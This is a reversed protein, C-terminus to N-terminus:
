AFLSIGGDKQLGLGKRELIPSDHSLFSQGKRQDERNEGPNRDERFLGGNQGFGYGTNGLKEQVSVNINNVILGQSHLADKLQEMNSQLIHRVNDNQTQLIVHVKNDKVLVDMYLRGLHPPHLRIKVRGLGNPLKKRAAKVIQQILIQPNIDSGNLTASVNSVSINPRHEGGSFSENILKDLARIKKHFIEIRPNSLEKTGADSLSKEIEAGNEKHM